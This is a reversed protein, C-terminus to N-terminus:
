ASVSGKFPVMQGNQILLQNEIETQQADAMKQRLEAEKVKSSAAKEAAAAGFYQSQADPPQQAQEQRRANIKDILKDKGKVNSITLLDVIDFANQAGLKLIVDLQEQSVNVTDYSEDLIIDMDLEAPRNKTEVVQQLAQPNTKELQVMMASAGLRMQYPKSEDDMVEQLQKQLTIPVNFGVWRLKQEDDTVRVWKEQSWSQRIRAWVQRYVRLKFNGFNEFLKVLETVGAQQLRQLAVGSLEGQQREGALQASYSTADMEAKAEQLLEFQGQAMDGTPLIGFDKGYEGQGVELHGDPKALERKAKRIDSVAGRNGYTQRQSLLFLAKSRRHNIEDQLDLFSALEGYRNNDRDIYAHEIELPCTPQGYEDLYPSPIPELLFGGGTYIALMWVGREKYYHTAVLYRKRRGFKGTWRPRDDFTEDDELPSETFASPDADPFAGQVDEEDMWLMFGKGRADAFDHRRSFPDFFIRDWPLHDVVVEPEGKANQEIPVNVGCYGECFFNDACELFTANLNTKDAVYRLGDTAAESADGDHDVNRPFAQPDGKRIATLGLLGNQKVKIRNNVTPAQKRKRLAAIQEATWQKGDYYDRCRESLTRADQTLTLFENVCEKLWAHKDSENNTAAATNVAEIVDKM